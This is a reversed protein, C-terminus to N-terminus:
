KPPFTGFPNTDTSPKNSGNLTTTSGQKLVIVIRAERDRVPVKQIQPQNAKKANVWTQYPVRVTVHSSGVGSIQGVGTGVAVWIISNPNQRNPRQQALTVRVWQGVQLGQLEIPYGVLKSDGRLKKLDEPSHEQPKGDPGFSKPAQLSRIQADDSVLFVYDRYATVYRHSALFQQQKAAAARYAQMQRNLQSRYAQMQRSYASRYRQGPSTRGRGYSRGRHSHGRNYSRRRTRPRADAQSLLGLDAFDGTLIVFFSALVTITKANM